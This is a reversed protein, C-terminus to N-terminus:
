TLVTATSQLYLIGEYGRRLEEVLPRLLVDLTKPKSSLSMLAIVRMNEKKNREDPSMSLNTAM